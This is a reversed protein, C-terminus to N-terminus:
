RSKPDVADWRRHCPRCLWRVTLPQSYDAHAAEPKCLQQCQECRDPRVLRGMRIAHQVRSRVRSLPSYREQYEPSAERQRREEALRERHRERYAATRRNNEKRIHEVNRERARRAAARYGERSKEPDAARREQMLAAECDICKTRQPRFRVDSRGCRTCCGDWPSWRSM